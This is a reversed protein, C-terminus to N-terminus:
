YRNSQEGSRTMIRKFEEPTKGGLSSHPREQNYERRWEEITRRVDELSLFWNENLCEDRFKGNFSEIFANENPKGPRIFALRIQNQFAWADMAKGTFESGNDIVIAKPLGRETKLDELVRTVRSGTISFDALLALCERTCDDVITLVRFRRGSPGLQDSMFDMSWRENPLDPKPMPVRELSRVKSKKRIKLSLCQERYIRRFKKENMKFGERKLLIFLRRYGYRRKHSALERLRAVFKPDDSRQGIYRRVARSLRFLRCARRESIPFQDKAYAVAAKRARPKVV